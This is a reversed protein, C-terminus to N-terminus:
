KNCIFSISKVLKQCVSEPFYRELTLRASSIYKDSFSISSDNIYPQKLNTRNTLIMFDRINKLNDLFREPNFKQCDVEVKFKYPLFKDDGDFKQVVLCRYDSPTLATTRNFPSLIIGICPKGQGIWDQLEVQTDLDQQSPEPAFTPHSHFWGLLDLGSNHIKEASRAQSVPCMDCHTSSSALNRCPEYHSIYYTGINEIWTGAILGMVESLSCHAHFDILLLTALDLKVKYRYSNPLLKCTFLYVSQKKAVKLKPQVPDENIVTTDIIEGHAGHSVTYGGEGNHLFKKKVRRPQSPKMVKSNKFIKHMPRIYRVRGCGYNIVGTQELFNHIKCLTSRVTPKYGKQIDGKTLYFPKKLNWTSVIHNRLDLYDKSMKTVTTNQPFFEILVYNELDSLCNEELKVETRPIELSNLQNLVVHNDEVKKIQNGKIDNESDESSNLYNIWIKPEKKVITKTNDCEDEVDVEEDSDESNKKIYVVEGQLLNSNPESKHEITFGNVKRDNGSMNKQKNTTSNNNKIIRQMQVSGKNRVAEISPNLKRKKRNNKDLIDDVVIEEGTCSIKYDISIDGIDVFHNSSKRTCINNGSHMPHLDTYFNKLYYVIQSPLKTGIFQSLQLPSKGFIEIGRELLAKEKVRWGSEDNISNETTIHIPEQNLEDDNRCTESNYWFKPNESPADLLWQPHVIYGCYLFDPEISLKLEDQGNM